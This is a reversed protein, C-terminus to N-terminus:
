EEEEAADEGVEILEEVEEKEEENMKKDSHDVSSTVSFTSFIPLHDSGIDPLIKISNVVIEKSSYLLDIPFRFISPRVPFTGFIGKGIRADNLNSIEAFLKSSRSWCVSNFDGAVLSPEDQKVILKALQMLEGDKQRSSPKETPSPPPPHFGWFVFRHNKSDELHAEIAPRDEVLFQHEKIKNVKLKTYLHMGYRNEYPAKLFSPLQDEIAELAKEWAKNTEMTLLIDPQYARVLDILKQYDTNSQLVNVSLLTVEHQPEEGSKRFYHTPLFPLIIYAQYLISIGLFIQGILIKTSFGEFYFFSAILIILMLFLVQIRFYDFVRASWHTINTSPLFSILFLLVALVIFTTTM